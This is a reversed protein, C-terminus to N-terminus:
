LEIEEILREWPFGDGPDEKRKPDLVSHREIRKISWTRIWWIIHNRGREFQGPRLYKTKITKRLTIRDHVGPVLFEIGLSDSNNGRAHWAGQHDKRCQVLECSPTVLVHASVGYEKLFETAHWDKGKWRIFEGMAHVVIQTPHNTKNGHVLPYQIM